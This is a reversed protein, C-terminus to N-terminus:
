TFDTCLAGIGAMNMGSYTSYHKASHGPMNMLGGYATENDGNVKDLIFLFCRIM